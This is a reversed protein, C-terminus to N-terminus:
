TFLSAVELEIGPPGLRLQGASVPLLALAITGDPTRAHHTVIRTEPDLVLYHRVSPLKFYGILKASTDTHATSPSLVEVVIIPAPVAVAGHPLRDGCYVLADPEYATHEDIPVTAGDALAHCPLGSRAIASKLALASAFKTEIHEVREPSMPVIRGNILESRPRESQTEGWALYEAVTLARRLAINM